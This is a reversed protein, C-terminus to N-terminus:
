PFKKVLQEHKDVLDYISMTPKSSQNLINDDVIEFDLHPQPARWFWFPAGFLTLPKLPQFLGCDVYELMMLQFTRMWGHPPWRKTLCRHRNNVQQRDYIPSDDGSWYSVAGNENRSHSTGRWSVPAISSPQDASTVTKVQHVAL